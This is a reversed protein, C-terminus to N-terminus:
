CNLSSKESPSSAMAFIAAHASLPAGCPLGASMGGGSVKTSLLAQRMPVGSRITTEGDTSIFATAGSQNPAIPVDGVPKVSSRYTAATSTL